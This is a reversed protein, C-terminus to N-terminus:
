GDYREESNKLRAKALALRIQFYSYHDGLQRRIASLQRDEIQSIKDVLENFIDQKIFPSLKFTPIAYALEIIHDEITSRKLRRREMIQEITYGKLILQYTKAASKTIIMKKQQLNHNPIMELLPNMQNVEIFSLLQHYSLTLLLYVDHKSLNYKVSLQQITLGFRQYGTLRDVFMRAQQDDITLLFGELQHYVDTLWEKVDQNKQYYQKVWVQTPTTDIIPQFRNVNMSLYSYTQITLSLRAIFENTQNAYAMGKLLHYPYNNKHERLYQLGKERIIARDQHTKELYGQESLQVLVSEFDERSIQNYIGYLNTLQYLHADQITQASKRGKFIYYISATTRQGKIQDVALLILYNFM